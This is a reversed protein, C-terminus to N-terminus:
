LTRQREIEGPKSGIQAEACNPQPNPRLKDKLIPKFSNSIDIEKGEKDQSGKTCTEASWRVAEGRRERDIFELTDPGTM